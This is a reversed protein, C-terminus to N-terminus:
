LGDDNEAGREELRDQGASGLIAFGQLRKPSKPILGLFPPGNRLVIFQAPTAAPSM